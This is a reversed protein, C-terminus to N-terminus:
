GSSDDTKEKLKLVVPGDRLPCWTPPIEPVAEDPFKRWEQDLFCWPDEPGEQAGPCGVCSDIERTSERLHDEGANVLRTLADVQNLGPPWPVKDTGGRLFSDITAALVADAMQLNDEEDGQDDWSILVTDVAKAVTRRLDELKSM